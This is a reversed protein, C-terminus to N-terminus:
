GADSNHLVILGGGQAAAQSLSAPFLRRAVTTKGCGSPGVILGIHWLKEDIPLRVDWDLRSTRASPLDFMGRVQQVRPTESISTEVTIHM